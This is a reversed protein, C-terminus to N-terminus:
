VTLDNESKIELADQLLRQLVAAFTAIVTSAGIIILGILIVGPADDREAAYYIYPMGATFLASIIIACYKINKLIRVSLESFAKNTDINGLLKMTQYLAFFFPIAPIYLGILIPAYYGTKDSTIGAPLVFICVALVLLGIIVVVAKLFLTSVQKM